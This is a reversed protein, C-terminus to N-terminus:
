EAVDPRPLPMGRGRMRGVEAWTEPSTQLWVLHIRHDSNIAPDRLISQIDSHLDFDPAHCVMAVFFLVLALPDSMGYAEARRWAAETGRHLEPDSWAEFLTPERRRAYAALRSVFTSDREAQLAAIQDTRITLM